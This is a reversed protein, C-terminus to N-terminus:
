LGTTDGGKEKLTAVYIAFQASLVAESKTLEAIRAEIERAKEGTIEGVPIQKLKETEQKIQGAKEEIAKKYAMATARLEKVDMKEAEARVQDLPKNEDVKKACGTFCFLSVAFVLCTLVTKMIDGKPIQNNLFATYCPLRNLIYQLSKTTRFCYKVKPHRLFLM